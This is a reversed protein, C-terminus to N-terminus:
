AGGGAPPASAGDKAEAKGAEAKGAEAKCAESKGAESKGAESKGIVAKNENAKAVAEHFGAHESHKKYYYQGEKPILDSNVTATVVALIGDISEQNNGDRNWISILNSNFRTSYTLGCIDDRGKLADAFQEGIALTLLNKFFPESKDKALRFTWSGGTVNRPDEWVPMVGRKFFHFSDKLKLDDYPLWNYVQWFDKVSTIDEGLKKLRNEYDADQGHKDHWFTWVYM